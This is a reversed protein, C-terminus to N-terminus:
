AGEGLLKLERLAARLPGQAEASLPTLPLRIGGEMREMAALAWKVPIPNPELFLAEHLAALPADLERAKAFDGALTAECIAALAAPVVNATVSIVGVCGAEMLEVNMGDEGSLLAFDDPVQAKLDKIRAVSGTAEKLGVIGPHAALRAVTEPLLDAVTRGPVNYLVVPMPVADAIASFHQFLGEQTPKNYYPTVQLSGAAGMAQAERTMLIAEDTANSGTGALVPRRGGVREIVREIVKLHDPIDLTPSEGTTGVPVFGHTGAELHWDVLADLAGWDLARAETMPTVLAVFSGKFM